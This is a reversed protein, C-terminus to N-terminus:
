KCHYNKQIKEYLASYEEPSLYSSEWIDAYIAAIVLTNKSKAAVTIPITKNNIVSYPLKINAGNLKFYKGQFHIETKQKWM